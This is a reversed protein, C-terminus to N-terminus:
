WDQALLGALGEATPNSRVPVRKLEFIGDLTHTAGPQTTLGGWYHASRYVAITQNDYAGSPYVIWRPHYGLHEQIAEMDGLARYVLEDVSKGRLDPYHYRGHAAFRQGAAAMEEIQPWTMYGPTNANVVDTMIFFHGVMGYKKLLPFADTYNDAYGDDFTLIVPKEPLPRGQALYDLLNDLTIVHYGNDHLHKLHSEFREPTVSIDRRVADANDPPTQIHHYMLIPVKVTRTMGDPTPGPTSTPTASPTPTEAATATLTPTATPTETATATLTPTATPTETATATATSVVTSTEVAPSASQFPSSPARGAQPSGGSAGRCAVVCIAAVLLVLGAWAIRASRRHGISM